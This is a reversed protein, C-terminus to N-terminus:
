SNLWNFFQWIVSVISSILATLSMAFAYKSIKAYKIEWVYGGKNLHLLGKSTIILTASKGFQKLYGEQILQHEVRSMDWGTQGSTPPLDHPVGDKFSALFLDLRKAELIDSGWVWLEIELSLTMM